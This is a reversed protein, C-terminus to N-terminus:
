RHDRSGIRPKAQVRVELPRDPRLGERGRIGARRGARRDGGPGRRQRGRHEIRLRSCAERRPTIRIGPQGMSRFMGLDKVGPVRSMTEVIAEALKENSELENGFVKVSNEGKVGSVAEEVNDSIMQ